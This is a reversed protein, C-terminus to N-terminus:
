TKPTQRTRPQTPPPLGGIPPRQGPKYLCDEDIGNYRGYVRFGLVAGAGPQGHLIEPNGVVEIEICYETRRKATGEFIDNYETWGYIYGRRTKLMISIIDQLAIDIPYTAPVDPGLVSGTVGPSDRDAFPFADPLDGELIVANANGLVNKAATNGKNRLIATVRYGIIDKEDNVMQNISFDTPVILARQIELLSREAIDASRQAAAISAEMDRSQRLSAQLTVIWLIITSLALVATFDAVVWNPDGLHELVRTFFKVLFIHFTPCHDHAAYYAAYNEPNVICPPVSATMWSVPEMVILAAVALTILLRTQSWAPM